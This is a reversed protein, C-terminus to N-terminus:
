KGTVCDPCWSKGDVGVSGTFLAFVTKGKNDDATKKYGDFGEVKVIQAM